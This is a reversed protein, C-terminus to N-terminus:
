DNGEMAVRYYYGHADKDIEGEKRLAKLTKGIIGEPLEFGQQELKFGIEMGDNQGDCLELIMGRWDPSQEDAQKTERNMPIYTRRETRALQDDILAAIRRAETALTCLSGHARESGTEVDRFLSRVHGVARRLEWFQEIKMLTSM